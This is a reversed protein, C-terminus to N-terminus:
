DEGKTINGYESLTKARWYIKVDKLIFFSTKIVVTEKSVQMSIPM